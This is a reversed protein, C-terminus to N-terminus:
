LMGRTIVGAPVSELSNLGQSSDQKLKACAIHVLAKLSSIPLGTTITEKRVSSLKTVKFSRPEWIALNAVSRRDLAIHCRSISLAQDNDNFKWCNKDSTIGRWDTQLHM